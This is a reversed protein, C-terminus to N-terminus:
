QGRMIAIAEALGPRDELEKAGSIGEDSLISILRHGNAKCWARIAAKQVDLGLGDEVQTATSVRVYGVIKM